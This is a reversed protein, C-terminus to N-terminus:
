FVFLFSTVMDEPDILQPIGMKDEAIQFAM